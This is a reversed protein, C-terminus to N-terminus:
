PRNRSGKCAPFRVCSWFEGFRGNKVRMTSGCLPCAPAPSGRRALPVDPEVARILALLGPGDVLVIGNARGWSIADETFTSTTVFVAGTAREGQMAGALARVLDGRVQNRSWRKCQVVIRDTGKHLELDVGRDPFPGGRHVVGWGLLKYVDGVIVELELGHGTQLDRVSQFRGVDQSIASPLIPDAVSLLPRPQASDAPNSGTPGISGAREAREHLSNLRYQEEIRDAARIRLFLRLALASLFALGLLVLGTAALVALLRPDQEIRLLAQWIGYVVVAVVVVGAIMLALRLDSSRRGRGRRQRTTWGGAM